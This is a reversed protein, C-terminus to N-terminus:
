VILADESTYNWIKHIKKSTGVQRKRMFHAVFLAVINAGM